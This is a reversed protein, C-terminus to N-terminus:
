FPYFAYSYVSGHSRFIRVRFSVDAFFVFSASVSVGSAGPHSSAAAEETGDM